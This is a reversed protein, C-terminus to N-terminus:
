SAKVARECMQAVDCDSLLLVLVRKARRLGFRTFLLSTNNPMTEEGTGKSRPPGIQAEYQIVMASLVTSVMIISGVGATAIVRGASTRSFSASSSSSSDSPLNSVSGM